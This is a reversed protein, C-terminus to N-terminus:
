GLQAGLGQHVGCGRRDRRHHAAGSGAGRLHRLRLHHRHPHLLLQGHGQGRAQPGARHGHGCPRHAPKGALRLGRRLHRRRLLGRGRQHPVPRHVAGGHRHGGRPLLPAPAQPVRGAGDRVSRVTALGGGRQAAGKHGADAGVGGGMVNVVSQFVGIFGSSTGMIIPVKGGVPGVAYLQVLTVLGAVLMANQLLSVQIAAFDAGGGLAACLNTIILIPTLNGVFMALVHQLGLPIAQALPLRGEFDYPTVYQKTKEM